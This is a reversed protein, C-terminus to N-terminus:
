NDSSRLVLVDSIRGLSGLSTKNSYFAYLSLSPYQWQTLADLGVGYIWSIGYLSLELNSLSRAAPGSRVNMLSKGQTIVASM